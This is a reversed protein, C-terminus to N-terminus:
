QTAPALFGYLHESDRVQDPREQAWPFGVSSVAIPEGGDIRGWRPAPSGAPLLPAGAALRLVAVDADTDRWVVAAATVGPEDPPRVQGVAAANPDNPVPAGPPHDPLGAVVHAATLVLEPNIRYGSGIQWSGDPRPAYVEVVRALDVPARGIGIRRDSSGPARPPCGPPLSAHRTVSASTRAM